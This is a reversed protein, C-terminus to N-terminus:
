KSSTVPKWVQFKIFTSQQSKILYKVPFHTLESVGLVIFYIRIYKQEVITAIIKERSTSEGSGLSPLYYRGEPSRLVSIEAFAYRVISNDSDSEETDFYRLDAAATM